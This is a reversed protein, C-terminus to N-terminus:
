PTVVIADNSYESFVANAVRIRYTYSTGPQAFVDSLSAADAGLVAIEVWAGGNTSRYVHVSTETTAPNNWTLQVETGSVPTAVLDTPADPAAPAAPTTLDVQNSPSSPGAVNIAVVRYGYLTNAAVTTDIFSTVNAGLLVLQSFAGGNESREVRMNAETTSGDSWALQVAGSSVPAASLTHPAEPPTSPAPAGTDLRVDDVVASVSGNTGGLRLRDATGSWSTTSSAFPAGFPTDGPAVFAEVLRTVGAGAQRQHLSVRYTTGVTLAVSSPTVASSGVRLQLQGTSTTYISGVTTGNNSLFALRVDTLSNLRLYFTLYVDATAPFDEQLYASGSFKASKADKIPSASEFTVSGSVTDAGTVPDILTAGEFTMLKLIQGLGGAGTPTTVNAVNSYASSAQGSTARVQYRYATGAVVTTDTYSTTNSPVTGIEAFAGAGLAREIRFLQETASNDNWALQVQNVASASASLNLPAAPPVVPLPTVVPASNTYGSPGAVNVARVRYSYATGPLVTPDAHSTANAGLVAIEAFIGDSGAREISFSAENTAGDIWTLQVTGGPLVSAILNTPDAPPVQPTTVTAVGSYNGLNGANEGRVRYTYFTAPTVAADLFATVDAAVTGIEAFVGNSGAREIRFATEDASVDTWSLEVASATPALASLNTPAQPGPIGTPMLTNDLKIDDVVLNVVATTLTGLRFETASTSWSGNTLQAFPAGFTGDGAMLFAELVANNGSTKARQHIGIRYVQGATLAASDSGVTSSNNRLRLQGTSRLLFTGVQSSGNMIRLLQVDSSPVTNLRLYFSMYLDPTAPFEEILYSSKVAVKAAFSGKLPTSSEITVTGSVDDVGTALDEVTGGEFTIVKVNGAGPPAPTSVQATNSYASPGVGNTARLRYSYATSPQVDEDDYSTTNAALTAILVFAGGGEARELEFQLENNASDSWTLHIEGGVPLGELEAPTLPPAPVPPGLSIVNHLYRRSGEDSALVVIGSQATANGKMSTADNVQTDTSSRIFPEGPGTPFTITDMSSTKMYLVGGGTESMFLYLQSNAEDLMVVGRTANEQGLTVTYLTWGSNRVALIINPKGTTDLSTKLIAFVRGAQDTKLNLHDDACSGSCGIGPLVTEVPQWVTPADAARHVTFYTSKTKQNSWMAGIDGNQFAVLASIDDANVSTSTGSVPLNVPTGWTADNGLSWNVKVKSGEVYTVWLRQTFDKVITLAETKGRTVDVPFGADLSYSQTGAAYSYRFLKGWTASSTTAAASETFVHSVVYLKQTTEDWLTDAKSTVRTDLTTGTDTWTQSGAEFRYIRYENAQPNFLSGWWLGDNFWLKSQPKEGTPNQNVTSGFSFDRFGNQVPTQAFASGSWVITAM